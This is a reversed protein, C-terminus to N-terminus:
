TMLKINESRYGSAVLVRRLEDVDDESYALTPLPEAPDYKRVGVLLAYKEGPERDLGQSHTPGGARLAALVTCVAIRNEPSRRMPVERGDGCARLSFTRHAPFKRSFRPRPSRRRDGLM